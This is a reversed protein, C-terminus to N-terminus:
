FIFPSQLPKMRMLDNLGKQQSLFGLLLLIFAFTTKHRQPNTLSLFDGLEVSRIKFTKREQTGRLLCDYCEWGM